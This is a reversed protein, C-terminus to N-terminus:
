RNIKACGKLSISHSQERKGSDKGSHVVIFGDSTTFRGQDLWWTESIGLLSINHREMNRTVIELKGMTMGRVNWTGCRFDKRLNTTNREEGPNDTVSAVDNCSPKIPARCGEEETAMPADELRLTGGDSALQRSRSQVRMIVLM